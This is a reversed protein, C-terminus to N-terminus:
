DIFEILLALLTESFSSTDVLIVMTLEVYYIVCNPATISTNSFVNM